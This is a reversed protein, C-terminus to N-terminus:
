GLVTMIDFIYHYPQSWIGKLCNLSCVPPQSTQLNHIKLSTFSSLVFINKEKIKLLSMIMRLTKQVVSSISSEQLWMKTSGNYLRRWTDLGYFSSNYRLNTFPPYM